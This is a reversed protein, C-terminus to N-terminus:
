AAREAPEHESLDADGPQLCAARPNGAVGAQEAVEHLHQIVEGRPKGDRGMPHLEALPSIDGRVRGQAEGPDGPADHRSWVARRERESVLERWTRSRGSVPAGVTREAKRPRLGAEVAEDAEALAVEQDNADQVGPHINWTMKSRATPSVFLRGSLCDTGSLGRVFRQGARFETGGHAWVWPAPRWPPMPAHVRPLARGRVERRLRLCLSFM